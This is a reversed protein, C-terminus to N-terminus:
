TARRRRSRPGRGRGPLGTWRVELEPDLDTVSPLPNGSGRTPMGRYFRSRVRDHARERSFVFLGAGAILAVGVWVVPRPIEGFVLWGWLIALPLAVYEYSAVVSATGLRYAKKLCYAITASMLGLVGFIWLDGTAPWVWARLLFFLAEHRVGEAFRGDGAVLFFGSSVAIFAGQSLDGHGLRGLPGGLKRTLVQM